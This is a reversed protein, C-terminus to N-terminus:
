IQSPINDKELYRATARGRSTIGLIDALTPTGIWSLSCWCLSGEYLSGEKIETIPVKLENHMSQDVNCIYPPHAEHVDWTDYQATNWTFMLSILHLNFYLKHEENIAPVPHDEDDSALIFVAQMGIPADSMYSQRQYNARNNVMLSAKGKQVARHASPAILIGVKLTKVMNLSTWPPSIDHDM